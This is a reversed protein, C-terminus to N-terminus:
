RMYEQNPKLDKTIERYFQNLIKPSFMSKYNINKKFFHIIFDKINCLLIDRPYIHILEKLLNFHCHRMRLGSGCLCPRHSGYAHPLYLYIILDLLRDEPVGPFKEHFYLFVADKDHGENGFPMKGYKEYYSFAYLFPVLLNNVYGLLTCDQSLKEYNAINIGLCLNGNIYHHFSQPIRGALEYALPIHFLDFNWPIDIRILYSDQISIQNFSASFSLVGAVFFCDLLKDIGYELGPYTAALQNYQEIFFQYNIETKLYCGGM